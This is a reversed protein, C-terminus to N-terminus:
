MPVLISEVAMSEVAMSEYCSIQCLFRESLSIEELKWNKVSAEVVVVLGLGVQDHLVKSVLAVSRQPWFRAADHEHARGHRAQSGHVARGVRELVVEAALRGEEALEREQRFVVHGPRLEHLDTSPQLKFM